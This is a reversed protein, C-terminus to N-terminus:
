RILQSILSMLQFPDDIMLKELDIHLGTEIVKDMDIEFIGCQDWKYLWDLIEYRNM